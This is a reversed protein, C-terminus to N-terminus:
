PKGGAPQVVNVMGSPAPEVSVLQFSWSPRAPAGTAPTGVAVPAAVPALTTSEVKVTALKLGQMLPSAALKDVWENLASPELTFGAVEFRSGDMLVSTIWVPAPISRAVWTLRDSHGWGPRFVGEALAQKLKERQALTNRRDQLMALLAPDVPAANARSRQIAAQLTEVERKQSALSQQISESAQNLNWVWLGCLVSGLVVFVGLSFAMTHASFYRKQTLLIPTCLNIQQPM